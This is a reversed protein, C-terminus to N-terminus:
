HQSLQQYDQHQVHIFDTRGVCKREVSKKVGGFLKTVQLKIFLKTILFFFLSWIETLTYAELQRFIM